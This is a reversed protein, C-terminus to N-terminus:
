RAESWSGCEFGHRGLLGLLGVEERTAELVAGARDRVLRALVARPEEDRRLIVLRLRLRARRAGSRRGAM